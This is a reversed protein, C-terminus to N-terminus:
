PYRKIQGDLGTKEKLSRALREIRDRDAEPGIRVRHFVKGDVTAEEIFVPFGKSRLDKELNRAREVETLASVQIVWSPAGTPALPRTPPPPEPATVRPAPAIAVPEPIPEQDVESEPEPALEPEPAGADASEPQEYLSPPPLEAPMPIPAPALPPEAVRTDFDPAFEPRPPIVLDGDPVPSPADEELLMPLFVVVLLVIVVAGALRRKSGEEM